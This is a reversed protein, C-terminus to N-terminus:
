ETYSRSNNRLWTHTPPKRKWGPPASRATPTRHFCRRYPRHRSARRFDQWNTWRIARRM